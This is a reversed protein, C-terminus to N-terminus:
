KRMNASLNRSDVSAVEITASHLPLRTSRALANDASCNLNEIRGQAKTGTGWICMSPSYHSARFSNMFRRCASIATERCVANTDDASL